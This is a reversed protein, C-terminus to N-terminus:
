NITQFREGNFSFDEFTHQSIAPRRAKLSHCLVVVILFIASIAMITTSLKVVLGVVLINRFGLIECNQFKFFLDCGM